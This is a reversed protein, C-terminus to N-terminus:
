VVSYAQDNQGLLIDFFALRHIQTHVVQLKTAVQIKLFPRYNHRLETYYYINLRKRIVYSAIEFICTSLVQIFNEM